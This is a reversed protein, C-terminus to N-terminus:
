PLPIGGSEDMLGFDAIRNRASRRENLKAQAAPPLDTLRILNMSILLDIVDEIVRIFEMDMQLLDAHPDLATLFALVDPHDLPLLDPAAPTAEQRLAVIRGHHDREIYPM